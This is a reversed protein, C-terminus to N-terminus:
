GRSEQLSQSLTINTLIKRGPLLKILEKLDAIQKETDGIKSYVLQRGGLADRNDPKLRIAESFDAIAKDNTGMAKYAQGRM